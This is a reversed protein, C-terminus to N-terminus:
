NLLVIGANLYTAFCVWALYPLLLAAAGRHLQRFMFFTIAVAVDLVVLDAPGLGPSRLGFFLPSWALNFLM